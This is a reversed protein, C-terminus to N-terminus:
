AGPSMLEFGYGVASGFTVEGPEVEPLKGGRCKAGFLELWGAQPGSSPGHSIQLLLCENKGDWVVRLESEGCTVRSVAGGFDGPSEQIPSSGLKAALSHFLAMAQTVTM